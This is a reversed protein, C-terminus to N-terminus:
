VEIFSEPQAFHDFIHAKPHKLDLRSDNSDDPPAAKEPLDSNAVHM